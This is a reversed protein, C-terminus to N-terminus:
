KKNNIGNPKNLDNFYDYSYIKSNFDLIKYQQQNDMIPNDIQQLLKLLNDDSVIITYCICSNGDVVKIDQSNILISVHSNVSVDTMKPGNIEENWEVFEEGSSWFKGEPLSGAMKSVFDSPSQDYFMFGKESNPSFVYIRNALEM